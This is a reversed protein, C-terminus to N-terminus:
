RPGTTYMSYSPHRGQVFSSNARFREFHGPLSMRNFPVLGSSRANLIGVYGWTGHFNVRWDRKSNTAAVFGKNELDPLEERTPEIGM